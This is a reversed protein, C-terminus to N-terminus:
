WIRFTFFFTYLDSSIRFFIMIILYGGSLDPLLAKAKHFVGM